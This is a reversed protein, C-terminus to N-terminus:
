GGVLEKTAYLRECSDVAGIPREIRHAAHQARGKLLM